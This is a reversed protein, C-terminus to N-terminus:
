SLPVIPLGYDDDISDSTTIIDGNESLIMIIDIRPSEYIIKKNEAENKLM